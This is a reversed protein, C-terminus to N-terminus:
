QAAAIQQLANRCATVAAELDWAIPVEVVTTEEPNVDLYKRWGGMDHEMQGVSLYEPLIAFSRFMADMFEASLTRLITGTDLPAGADKIKVANFQHHHLHNKRYVDRGVNWAWMEVTYGDDELIDALATAVAGRSIADSAVIRSELKVTTWGSVHGMICASHHQVEISFVREGGGDLNALITVHGPGRSTERYSQRYADADGALRRDISMDGEDAWRRQRKRSKAVHAYDHQLQERAAAVLAQGESWPLLLSTELAELYSTTTKSRGRWARITARMMASVNPFLLAHGRLSKDHIHRFAPTM